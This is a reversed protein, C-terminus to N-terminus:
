RAGGKDARKIFREIAKQGEDSYPYLATAAFNILEERNDSDYRNLICLLELVEIPECHFGDCGASEAIGEVRAVDKVWQSTKTKKPV